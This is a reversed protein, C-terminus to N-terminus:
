KAEKAEEGVQEENLAINDAMKFFPFYLVAHAIVCCIVMGSLLVGGQLFASIFTPVQTPLQVAPNFTAGLKMFIFGIIAGVVSSTVMPVFYLPNLVVPTGFIIPENINFINPILGLKGLTKYRKSKSFIAMDIALGLTNGNGGIYTATAMITFGYFPLQSLPTGSSMAAVNGAMATMILPFYVGMIPSPHIGFFWCINMFTVIILPTWTGLGVNMVPKTVIQTVFEFVNGFATLGVTVRVIFVILFIIISVIAPSLSNSVMPPVGSPLKIKLKDYSMLTCYLKSILLGVIIAVFIGKSGLFSADLAKVTKDGINITQPMLIIFTALSILGATIGNEKSKTAYFYAVGVSIYIAIMSTTANVIDSMNKGLNFQKLIGQWAPIPLSGLIAFIAVGITIPMTSVMGGMLAGIVKNKQVKNMAVMINKKLDNKNTSTM